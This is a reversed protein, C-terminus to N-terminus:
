SRVYLIQDCYLTDEDREIWLSIEKTESFDETERVCSVKIGILKRVLVSMM